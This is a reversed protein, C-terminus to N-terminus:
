EEFYQAFQERLFPYLLNEPLGSGLLAELLAM